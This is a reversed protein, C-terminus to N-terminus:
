RSLLKKNFLSKTWIKYSLQAQAYLMSLGNIIRAGHECASKLFATEAPNYVLDCAIHRHTLANYPIQPKSYINPYTGLPTCNVILRHEEVIDSTLDGYTLGNTTVRRSVVTTEVGHSNLAFIVAAAAGGTGGLILAKQPLSDFYKFYGEIFGVADTNYGILIEESGRRSVQVTNVAGIAEANEDLLNLYPIVTQKYPITINLGQLKPQTKILEPLMGIDSLEFNLYQAEIHEKAFKDAFYAASFSHGLTRGVLGYTIM